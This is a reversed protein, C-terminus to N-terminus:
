SEVNLKEHILASSFNSGAKGLSLFSATRIIMELLFLEGAADM